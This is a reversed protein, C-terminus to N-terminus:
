NISMLGQIERCKKCLDTMRNVFMFDALPKLSYNCNQGKCRKTGRPEDM